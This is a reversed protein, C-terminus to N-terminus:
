TLICATTRLSLRSLAPETRCISTKQATLGIHLCAAGTSGNRHLTFAAGKFEITYVPYSSM